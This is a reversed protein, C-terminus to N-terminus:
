FPRSLGKKSDFTIARPFTSFSLCAYGPSCRSTNLVRVHGPASIHVERDKFIIRGDDKSYIGTFIKMLTSTGARLELQAQSLAHVGPFHKEIGSM